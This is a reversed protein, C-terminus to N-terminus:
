RLRRSRRNVLSAELVVGVALHDSPLFGADDPVSGFTECSKVRVGVGNSRVFVYDLRVQPDPNPMTPGCGSSADSFGADVITGLLSDDPNANFDGAIVTVDPDTRRAERAVLEAVIPGRMGARALPLHVCVARVHLGAVCTEVWLPAPYGYLDSELEVVGAALPGSATIIALRAPHRDEHAVLGLARAVQAGASASPFRGSEQVLVLDPRRSALEAVVLPYRRRWVAEPDRERLAASGSIAGRTVGRESWYPEPAGEGWLNWTVIRVLTRDAV